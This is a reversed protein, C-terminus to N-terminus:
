PYVIEAPTYTVTTNVTEDPYGSAKVTERYTVTILEQNQFQEGTPPSLFVQSTPYNIGDVTAYKWGIESEVTYPIHNEEYYEKIHNDVSETVTWRYKQPEYTVIGQEKELDFPRYLRLTRFTCETEREKGNLKFKVQEPLLPEYGLMCKRDMSMRIVETDSLKLRAKVEQGSHRLFADYEKWFRNFLGDERHCTLSIDYRNGESDSMFDGHWDRNFQSAFFWNAAYHDSPDIDTMGWGFCFATEAPNEETEQPNGGVTVDSYCHRYGVPYYPILYYDFKNFIFPDKVVFYELPLCMDTMKIEEYDLGPTKKDWDFFDSSFVETDAIGGVASYLHYNNTMAFFRNTVGAPLEFLNRTHQETFGGPYAKLFEEFTGSPTRDGVTGSEIKRNVSLKLQKQASYSIEPEETKFPTLNV